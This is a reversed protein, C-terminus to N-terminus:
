GGQAPRAAPWALGKLEQTLAAYYLSFILGLVLQTLVLPAGSPLVLPTGLVLALLLIWAPFRAMVAPIRLAGFLPPLVWILVLSAAGVAPWIWYTGWIGQTYHRVLWIVGMHVYLFLFSSKGLWLLPAFLRTVATSPLRRAIYFSTATLFLSFLFYGTTMDWRNDIGLTVGAGWATGLALLASGALWLNHRNPALYCSMGLFFPFLWPIIVFNGPEVVVYALDAMWWTDRLTDTALKLAFITIAAGLHFWPGPNLFRQVLYLTLVGVAIIQLIDMDFPVWFNTFNERAMPTFSLGLMFIMAYTIIIGAVPYKRAQFDATIGSVAFFLIPTFSGLFTLVKSPLDLQLQTHALVMMVCAIGKLLDLSSDRM